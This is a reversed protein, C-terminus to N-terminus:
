MSFHNLVATDIDIIAFLDRDNVTIMHEGDPLMWGQNVNLIVDANGGNLCNEAFPHDDDINSCRSWM